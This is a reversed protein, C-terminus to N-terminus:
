IRKSTKEEKSKNRKCKLYIFTLQFWALVVDYFVVIVLLIRSLIQSNQNKKAYEIELLCVYCRKYM